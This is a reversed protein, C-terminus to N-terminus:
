LVVGIYIGSGLVQKSIEGVADLGINPLIGIVLCAAALILVPVLMSAPTAGGRTHGDSKGLFIVQFARIYVALILLSVAISIALPMFHGADFCARYILLKSIFGNFPPIGAIALGGFLFMTAEVPMHKLLGGMKGIERTGVRYIVCGITLFLLATALAHNVIHFIAGEIGGATGIGLSLTIYGVGCITSYALLRKIDTQVLAFAAGIIMTVIGLAMIAPGIGIAQFGFMTYTIRIIGYLGVNVSVGSLLASIPSPAALHADPLWAHLPVIAAVLGLGIILSIGAFTLIKMNGITKIMEAIHAMNLTGAINYILGIGLLFVFGAIMSLVMYKFSAEMEMPGGRFAVLAYATIFSIELFVFMNFLDGTLVIGNMGAIMFMLLSDYMPRGTFKKMYSTSYVVCLFGIGSIILTMLASLSDAVLNIGLPPSWGGVGYTLINGELTTKLITVALAILILTTITSIAHRAKNSFRGITTNLLGAFLPMVIMLILALEIM